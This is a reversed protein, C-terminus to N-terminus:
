SAVLSEVLTRAKRADAIRQKPDLVPGLTEIVLPGSTFGGARLDDMVKKFKVLGEGPTVDVNKPAKFDKVCMGTVVGAASKADDAPDLKGDSYYFINGPDYWLKFNKKALKEVTAKCQAGTSNVGGHPKIVLSVNKGVAYDCAESVAAYYPDYEEQKSTGGLLLTPVTAAVANDILKKLADVFSGVGVGIGPLGAAWSGVVTLNRKRAEEGAKGADELSMKAHLVYGGPGKTTMFGVCKFGAEAIADFAVPYPENSWPRTFCGIQFGAAAPADNARLVPSLVAAAGAAAIGSLVQRRTLGDSM